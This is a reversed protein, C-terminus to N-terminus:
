IGLAAQIEAWPIQVDVIPPHKGYGTSTDLVGSTSTGGGPMQKTELDTYKTEKVNFWILQLADGDKMLAKLEEISKARKQFGTPFPNELVYKGDKVSTPPGMAGVFERTPRVGPSKWVAAIEDVDYTTVGDVVARPFEIPDWHFGAPLIEKTASVNIGLVYDSGSTQIDVVYKMKGDMIPYSKSYTLPKLNSAASQPANSATGSKPASKGFMMWAAAVLVLVILIVFM